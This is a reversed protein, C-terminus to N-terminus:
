ISLCVLGTAIRAQMAVQGAQVDVGRTAVQVREHNALLSAYGRRMSELLAQQPSLTM